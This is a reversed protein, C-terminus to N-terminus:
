IDHASKSAALYPTWLLWGDPEEFLIGLQEKNDAPSETRLMKTSHSTKKHGMRILLPSSAHDAKAM